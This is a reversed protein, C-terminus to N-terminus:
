LWISPPPPAFLKWEKFPPACFTKGQKSPFPACVTESGCNEWKTAGGGRKWYNIVLGKGRLNLSFKVFKWQAKYGRQNFIITRRRNCHRFLKWINVLPFYQVLFVGMGSYKGRRVEPPYYILYYEILHVDFCSVHM